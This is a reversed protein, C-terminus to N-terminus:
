IINYKGTIYALKTRDTCGYKRLIASVHAKVTHKSISLLDGIEKNNYGKVLYNLVDKERESLQNM